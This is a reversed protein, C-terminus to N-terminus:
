EAAGAMADQRQSLLRRRNRRRLLWLATGTAALTPMALGALLVLVRWALGFADGYHLARLWGLSVLALKQTSPDQMSLVRRGAPDVTVIIPPTGAWSGPRQLRAVVPAGPQNPLRLEVIRADPETAVLRALVADIDLPERAERGQGGRIPLGVPAGLAARVTQPFSLTLGSASMVLLMLSVWFGVAGHLERQLRAGRAGKRVTVAARWRAPRAADPWWLVIGSLSLLLLGVGCWGIIAHGPIAPLLLDQHLSHVWRYAQSTERSALIDLSVPDVLVQRQAERQGPVALDIEAPKSGGGPQFRVPALRPQAAAALMASASQPTGDRVAPVPRMAQWVPTIVLVCGTVAQVLMPLALVLGLWRHSVRLVRVIM